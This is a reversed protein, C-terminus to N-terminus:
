PRVSAVASHGSSVHLRKELPIIEFAHLSCCCRHPLFQSIPRERLWVQTSHFATGTSYNAADNPSQRHCVSLLASSSYAALVCSAFDM